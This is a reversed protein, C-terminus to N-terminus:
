AIVKIFEVALSRTKRKMLGQKAFEDAAQKANIGATIKTKKSPELFNDNMAFFADYNRYGPLSIVSERQFDKFTPRTGTKPKPTAKICSELSWQGDPIFFGVVTAGTYAKLSAILGATDGEIKYSHSADVRFTFEDAVQTRVNGSPNYTHDELRKRTEESLIDYTAETSFNAYMHSGDGDTLTIFAVKELREM